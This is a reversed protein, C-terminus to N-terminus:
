IIKGGRSICIEIAKSLNECRDYIHVEEFCTGAAETNVESRIKWAAEDAEEKSQFLIREIIEM